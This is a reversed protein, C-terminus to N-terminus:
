FLPEVSVPATQTFLSIDINNQLRQLAAAYNPTVTYGNSPQYGLIGAARMSRIAAYVPSAEGITAIAGVSVLENMVLRAVEANGCHFAIETVLDLPTVHSAPLTHHAAFHQLMANVTDAAHNSLANVLPILGLWTPATHGGLESFEDLHHQVEIRIRRNTKAYIRVFEGARVKVAIFVANREVGNEVIPGYLEESRHQSSFTRLLPWLSEVLAVPNQSSFEWYTEVLRLNAPRPFFVCQVAADHLMQIRHIEASLALEVVEFYRRLHHQWRQPNTFADFRQSDYLWNDKGDLVIEGNFSEVSREAVYAPDPWAVTSDAAPLPVSSQYRAFRTPNLELAMTTRVTRSENPDGYIYNRFRWEGGFLPREAFYPTGAVELRRTRIQLPFRYSGQQNPRNFLRGWTQLAANNGEFREEAPPPGMRERFGEIDEVIGTIQWEKLDAM